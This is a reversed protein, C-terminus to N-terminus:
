YGLKKAQEAYRAVHLAVPETLHIVPSGPVSYTTAPQHNEWAQRADEKTPHEYSSSLAALGDAEALSLGSRELATRSWVIM